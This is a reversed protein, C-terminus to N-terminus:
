GDTELFVEFPVSPDGGRMSVRGTVYYVTPAAKRSASEIATFLEGGDDRRLADLLVQTVHSAAADEFRAFVEAITGDFAWRPEGRRNTGV